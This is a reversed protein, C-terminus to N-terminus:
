QWNQTKETLKWLWWKLVSGEERGGLYWGQSWAERLGSGEERHEWGVSHMSSPLPTHSCCSLVCAESESEWLLIWGAGGKERLRVEPLSRQERSWKSGGKFHPNDSNTSWLSMPLILQSLVRSNSLAWQGFHDTVTIFPLQPVKAPSWSTM